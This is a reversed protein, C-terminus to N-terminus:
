RESLAKQIRDIQEKDQAIGSEHFAKILESPFNHHSGSGVFGEARAKEMAAERKALGQQRVLLDKKLDKRKKIDFFHKELKEIREADRQAVNYNRFAAGFLVLVTVIAATIAVTKLSPLSM